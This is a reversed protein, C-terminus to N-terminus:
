RVKYIDSKPEEKSAQFTLVGKEFSVIKITEPSVIGLKVELKYTEKGNDLDFCVFGTVKNYEASKIDDDGFGPLKAMVTFVGNEVIIKPTELNIPKTLFKELEKSVEIFDPRIPRKQGIRLSERFMSELANKEPQTIYLYSM